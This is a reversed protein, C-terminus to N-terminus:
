EFNDIVKIPTYKYAHAFAPCVYPSNKDSLEDTIVVKKIASGNTTSSSLYSNAALLFSKINILEPFKRNAYSPVYLIYDTVGDLIYIDFGIPYKYSM